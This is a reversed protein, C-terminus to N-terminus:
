FFFWTIRSKFPVLNNLTILFILENWKFMTCKMEFCNKLVSITNNTKNVDCQYTRIFQDCALGIARM